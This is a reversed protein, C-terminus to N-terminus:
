KFAKCVQVAHNMSAQYDGMSRDVLSLLAKDTISKKYQEKMQDFMGLIPNKDNFNLQECIAHLTHKAKAQHVGDQADSALSMSQALLYVGGYNANMFGGLSYAFLALNKNKKVLEQIRAIDDRMLKANEMLVKEKQEYNIPAKFDTELSQNDKKSLDAASASTMMLGVNATQAEARTAMVGSIIGAALLAKASMILTKKIEKKM